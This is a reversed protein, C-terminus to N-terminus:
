HGGSGQGTLEISINGLRPLDTDDFSSPFKEQENIGSSLENSSRVNQVFTFPFAVENSENGSRDIVSVGLTIRTGEELASGRPSLTNWQLYGKLHNRHQPDLLILDTPYRGQGPQDVVVAIKSMDADGSEAEIYIKWIMGYPGKDVAYSNTIVPGKGQLVSQASGGAVFFFGLAIMLGTLCALKFTKMNEM